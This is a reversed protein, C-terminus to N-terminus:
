NVNRDLIGELNEKIEDIMEQHTEYMSEIVTRVYSHLEELTIKEQSCM